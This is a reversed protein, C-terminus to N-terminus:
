ILTIKYFTLVNIANSTFHAGYGLVATTTPLKKTTKKKIERKNQSKILIVRALNVGRFYFLALICSRWCAHPVTRVCISRHTPLPNIIYISHSVFTAADWRYLIRFCTHMFKRIETLKKVLEREKGNRKNPREREREKSCLPQLRWM